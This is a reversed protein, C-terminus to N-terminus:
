RHYKHTKLHFSSHRNCALPVPAQQGIVEGLLFVFLFLSLVGITLLRRTNEINLCYPWDM